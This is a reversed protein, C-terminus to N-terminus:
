EYIATVLMLGSQLSIECPVGAAINSVGRTSGCELTYNDLPYELNKNSVGRCRTLAVMSVITGVPVDLLIKDKVPYIISRGSLIAAVEGRNVMDAAMMINALSHDARDGTAGLFLFDGIGQERGWMLAIESDTSDKKVPYRIIEINKPVASISDFDGLVVAPTLGMRVAHDYGSDACIIVDAPSILSKALSYDGIDGGCIIVGRM